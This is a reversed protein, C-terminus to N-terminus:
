WSSRRGSATVAARYDGKALAQQVARAERATEIGSGWGIGNGEKQPASPKEKGKAKQSKKSSPPQNVEFTQAKLRSATALAFLLAISVSFNTGRM